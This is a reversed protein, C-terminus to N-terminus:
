RADRGGDYVVAAAVSAASSSSATSISSARSRLTYAILRAAYQVVKLAKERFDTSASLAAYPALATVLPATAM